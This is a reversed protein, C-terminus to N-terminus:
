RWAPQRGDFRTPQVSSVAHAPANHQQASDNVLWNVLAVGNPAGWGTPHDWNQGSKHGPGTGNGNDGTTVDFFVRNYDASQGIRYVTPNASGLRGGNAETALTWLSAWAPASVSTGGLQMWSGSSYIAYGTNPDANMSVDASHRKDTSPVGNGQQWAPKSWYDSSGGGSGTWASESSRKGNTLKLTTGGVATVYPDSSPYDVSMKSHCDYAGDDGSSAFFGIGQSVGQKFIDQETKMQAQGTGDECLGWSVSVVDAKNDTVIQNFVMTFTEFKPDVGIYMLIDAGPAQAAITELDLTTEDETKTTTGNIPIDTITGTRRINFQKLFTDVDAKNYGYATAIAVTRGRGSYKTTAQRNNANPFNYARAIDQPSYGTPTAFKRPGHAHALMSHRQNFDSLGGVSQVVSRLDYPVYPDHDNSFYIGTKFGHVNQISYENIKVKFAKEVQDASGEAVVLVRNDSVSVVSLGASKLFNATQDVDAQTPGFRRTFEAPTIFKRFQPSGPTQQDAILKELEDVNRLKLGIVLRMPKAPSVHKVFQGNYMMSPTNGRLVVTNPRFMSPGLGFYWAALLALAGMTLWTILKQTKSLKM